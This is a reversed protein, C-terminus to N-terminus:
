ATSGGAPRPGTRDVLHRIVDLASVLGVPEGAATTVVLHRVGHRTMLAAAESVTTTTTALVPTRTAVQEAPADPALGAALAGILDHETVLWGPDAGVLVASVAGDEMAAAVTRVTADRGVRAPPRLGLASLEAGAAPGPREGTAVEAPAPVVAARLPFRRGSLIGTRIRVLTTGPEPVLPAAGIPRAPAAQSGDEVVTALGHVLVSWADGDGESLQDIEFSVITHGTAADLMSGPGIQVLVDEDLMRYNVPQIVVNDAGDVLGIRGVGGAGVALLRACENRTLVESGRQDIWM